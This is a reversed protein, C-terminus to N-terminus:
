TQEGTAYRAGGCNLGSLPYVVELTESDILPLTLKEYDFLARGNLHLAGRERNPWYVGFELTRLFPYIKMLQPAGGIPGSFKGHRNTFTPDALMSALASFPQMDFRDAKRYDIFDSLRDFFQPRLDGIMAFQASSYLGRSRTKPFRPSAAVFNKPGGDYKIQSIVPRRLRWSYCGLIFSTEKLESCLEAPNIYAELFRNALAAFRKPLESGDLSRDLSKKYHRTYGIFQHIIPYALLTSGCFGVAADDRPLPFVKQCVDINGGGTLRSDSCFVLESGGSLKREWAITITM